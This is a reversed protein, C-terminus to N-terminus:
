DGVEPEAVASVRGPHVIVANSTCVQRCMGCQTCLTQDIVHVGKKEGSIAKVPCYLACATCGDCPGPLIEFSILGRCVGAPCEHDIIHREYEDRFYRLTSLVPNPATQGLGCLSAIKTARALEELLEIDGERGDGACIAELIQHMRRVGERCAVCRGCSEYKVFDLFYRALDVMCTAEDIVVLGGSGMMAGLETLSQYDILVDLHEAPICGGSPGGIQAAKFAKNDPIGGGIDFILERLTIGMPVEVLGTNCVKGVLSFIMTGRSSETGIQRFWEAGRDIIQPVNAWSKVNNINTPHGWLGRETPYPPRPQPEGIRGEISAMLASEEGCVFAGAGLQIGLDFDIGSGLINKGLLGYERAQEIAINLHAAALPYEARVYVFGQRAGIAYAGIIMGELVLHPNSELISRDMFAGPDGEDANCIVYKTEDPQQRCLRWKRATPFGAGGRGRLRAHDVEDIVQEPSLSGLVKTLARYGGEAIYDEINTPDIKGHWGLLLRTQRKYFPIDDEHVIKEDSEADTYLLRDIVKGNQVTEQLIQPIDKVKVQNYFIGQPQVVMLPGKECLGPCGTMRVEVEVGLAKAQNELEELLEDSGYTRCGTGGCVALVPRDPDRANQIATRLADLEAITNLRPM